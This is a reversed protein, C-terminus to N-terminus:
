VSVSTNSPPSSMKDTAKLDQLHIANHYSKKYMHTSKDRTCPQNEYPQPYLTCMTIVIVLVTMHQTYNEDDDTDNNQTHLLIIFSEPWVTKKKPPASFQNIVYYEVNDHM